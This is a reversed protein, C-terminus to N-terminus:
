VKGDMADAEIEAALEAVMGLASAARAGPDVGERGLHQAYETVYWGSQLLLSVTLVADDLLADMESGIKFGRLFVERARGQQDFGVSLVLRKGGWQFERSVQTRRSPLPLRPEPVGALRRGPVILTRGRVATEIGAGCLCTDFYPRTFPMAGRSACWRRYGDYVEVMSVSAGAAAVMCSAVFDALVHQRDPGSM